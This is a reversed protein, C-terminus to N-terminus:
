LAEMPVNVIGDNGEEDSGEGYDEDIDQWESDLSRSDVLLELDGSALSDDDSVDEVVYDNHEAWSPTHGQTLGFAELVFDETSHQLFRISDEDVYDWGVGRVVITRITASQGLGGDANRSLVIDKVCELPLVDNNDFVLHELKPCLHSTVQVPEGEDEGDDHRRNYSNTAGYELALRINNDVDCAALRLYTLSRANELIGIWRSGHASFNTVDLKELQPCCKTLEMLWLLRRSGSVCDAEVTEGPFLFDVTLSRIHPTDLCLWLRQISSERLRMFRIDRLAALSLREHNCRPHSSSIFDAEPLFHVDELTLSELTVQMSTLWQIIQDCNVSSHATLTHKERYEFTQVRALFRGEGNVVDRMPTGRLCLYQPQAGNSVAGEVWGEPDEDAQELTYNHLGIDLSQPRTSSDAILPFAAELWAKHIFVMALSHIRHCHPRVLQIFREIHTVGLSIRLTLPPYSARVDLPTDRSRELYLSVRKPGYLIDIISWLLPTAIAFTRLNRNVQAASWPIHLDEARAQLLIELLIDLPLKLINFTAQDLSYWHHSPTSESHSRSDHDVPDIQRTLSPGGDCHRSPACILKLQDFECPLSEEVNVATCSHVHVDCDARYGKAMGMSAHDLSSDM